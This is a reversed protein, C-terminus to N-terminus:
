KKKKKTAEVQITITIDKSLVLGGGELVKNWSVGYDMRNITAIATFGIKDGMTGLHELDFSVKKTVGHITLDGKLTYANDKKKDPSLKVNKLTLTPYKEVDFFDASKLHGDRKANGTDISAAQITFTGTAKSSKKPNFTFDGSFEKFQGPVKSVLHRVTFGVHSHVPDVEYTAAQGVSAFAVLAYATVALSLCTTTKM